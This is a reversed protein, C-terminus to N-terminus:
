SGAATAQSSLATSVATVGNTLATQFQPAFAAVIAVMIVIALIIWEVSVVGREDRAKQLWLNLLMLM